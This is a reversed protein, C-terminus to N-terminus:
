TDIDVKDRGGRLVRCAIEINGKGVCLGVLVAETLVNAHVRTIM